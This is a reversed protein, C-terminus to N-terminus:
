ITIKNSKQSNNIIQAVRNNLEIKIKSKDKFINNVIIKNIGIVEM